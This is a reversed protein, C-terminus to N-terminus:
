KGKVKKDGLVFRQLTHDCVKLAKNYSVSVISPKALFIVDLEPWPGELDRCLARMRRRASNRFVSNGIRKGAIFAVRGNYSQDRQKEKDIKSSRKGVIFTLYPCQYREGTKFLHSIEEGSKIIEM